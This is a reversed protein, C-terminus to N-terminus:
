SRPAGLHVSQSMRDYFESYIKPDDVLETRWLQGLNNTIYRDFSVRVDEATGGAAPSVVLTVHISQKEDYVPNSAVGGIAAAVTLAWALAVQGIEKADRQKSAVLVGIDPETETVTFGLDQLTAAGAVLLAEARVGEFRRMEFERMKVASEPPAGLRLAVKNPEECAALAGLLLLAAIPRLRARVQRPPVNRVM